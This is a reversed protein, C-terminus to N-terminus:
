AGFATRQLSFRFESRERLFQPIAQDFVALYALVIQQIFAISALDASVSAVLNMVFCFSSIIQASNFGKEADAREAMPFDM